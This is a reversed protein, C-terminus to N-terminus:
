SASDKPGQGVTPLPQVSGRGAKLIGLRAVRVKGSDVSDEPFVPFMFLRCSSHMVGISGKCSIAM